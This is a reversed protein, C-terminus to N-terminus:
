NRVSEKAGGVIAKDTCDDCFLENKKGKILALNTNDESRFSKSCFGCTPKDKRVRSFVGYNMFNRQVMEVEFRETHVREFVFSM